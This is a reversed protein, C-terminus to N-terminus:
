YMLMPVPEDGHFTGVRLNGGIPKVVQCVRRTSALPWHFEANIPARLFLYQLETLSVNELPPLLILRRNTRVQM